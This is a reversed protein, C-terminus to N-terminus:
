TRYAPPPAPEEAERPSGTLSVETEPDFLHLHEVNPAVDVVDGARLEARPEFSACFLVGSGVLPAEELDEGSAAAVVGPTRPAEADVRFYALLSQGLAEVREISARITGPGGGNRSADHIDEPRVGVIVPKGAWGDLGKATVM